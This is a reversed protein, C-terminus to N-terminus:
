QLLPQRVETVARERLRVSGGLFGSDGIEM